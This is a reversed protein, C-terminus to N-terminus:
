LPNVEGNVGALTTKWELRNPTTFTVENLYVSEVADIATSSLGATAPVMDAQRLICGPRISWLPVEGGSADEIRGDAQEIYTPATDSRGNPKIYPIRGQGVGFTYGIGTGTNFASTMLRKIISGAAEYTAYRTTGADYQGFQQAATVGTTQMQSYTTSILPCAATLMTEVITTIEATGTTNAVYPQDMTSLGWGTCSLEIVDDAQGGLDGVTGSQNTPLYMLRKRDDRDRALRATAAAATLQGPNDVYVIQGFIAIGATDSASVLKNATTVTPPATAANIEDYILDTVNSYGELSRTRPRPGPIKVSWVRGEWCWDGDRSYITIPNGLWTEAAAYADEVSGTFRITAEVPGWLVATTMSIGDETLVGTLDAVLDTTPVGNLGRGTIVVQM